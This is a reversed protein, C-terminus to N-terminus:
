RRRSDEDSERRKISNASLTTPVLARSMWGGGMSPPHPPVSICPVCWWHARSSYGGCDDGGGGNYMDTLIWGRDYVTRSIETYNRIYARSRRVLCTMMINIDVLCTMTTNIDNALSNFKSVIKKKIHLFFCYAQVKPAVAASRM